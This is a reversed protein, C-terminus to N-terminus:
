EPRRSIAVPIPTIATAITASTIARWVPRALGSSAYVAPMRWSMPLITIFWYAGSCSVTAILRETLWPM